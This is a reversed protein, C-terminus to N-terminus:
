CDVASRIAHCLDQDRTAPLGGMRHTLMSKPFPLIGDMAAVCETPLGEAPGLPVETPIGRITRTVPAVLVTRLVPIADDRTLVLYPRGKADPTEGWWIEGRAHSSV